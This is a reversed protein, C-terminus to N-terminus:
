ADPYKDVDVPTFLIAIPVLAYVDSSFPTAIPNPAVVPSTDPPELGNESTTPLDPFLGITVSDNPADSVDNITITFPILYLSRM